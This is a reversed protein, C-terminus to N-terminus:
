TGSNDETEQPPKDTPKDKPPLTTGSGMPQVGIIDTEDVSQCQLVLWLILEIM